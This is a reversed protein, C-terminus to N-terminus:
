LYSIFLYYLGQACTRQSIVAKLALENHDYTLTAYYEAM